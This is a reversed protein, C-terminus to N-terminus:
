IRASYKKVLPAIDVGKLLGGVIWIVSDFTALAAAAAHPNTAKSDDVWSVGDKELILEIRHSDLKFDRLAASIDQPSVQIARAIASAAAINAMLHPSILPINVLDSLTALELAFSPDDVFARDM